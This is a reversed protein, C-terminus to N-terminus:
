ESVDAGGAKQGIRFVVFEAPKVPAVGIMIVVRGEDIDQQTMTTGLGVEVFFAQERTAGQLAGSRWVSTLFATVTARLGNWLPVDNPRFVAYQTSRDISQELFIFLRRVNIYRWLAESTITRAGWVRIGRGPLERIANIGKPNLVAQQATGVIAELDLAGSVPQNAPAAHVGPGADTRAYIGIVHGSPPATARTNELPDFIQIWPYYLAGYKSEYLDRQAKVGDLDAGPESDLVAFCYKTLECHNTLASQVEQSTWGPAAIISVDDINLFSAIGTRDDANVADAGILQTDGIAGLPDSGGTMHADQVVLPLDTADLGTAPKLSKVRVLNSRENVIKEVFRSHRPDLSLGEFRESILGYALELTFELTSVPLPGSAAPDLADTLTGDLFVTNGVVRSVTASRNDPLSLLSGTEIGKANLLEISPSGVNALTAVVSAAASAPTVDIRVDHAWEGVWPHRVPDPRSPGADIELAAATALSGVPTGAPHPFRLGSHLVLTDAAAAFASVLAYETAVGDAIRVLKEIAFKSRDDVQIQTAGAKADSSLVPSAPPDLRRIPANAAHPADPPATLPLLVPGGSGTLDLPAGAGIQLLERKSTDNEWTTVNGGPVLDTGPAQDLPLWAARALTTAHPTAPAALLAAVGVGKSHPKRPVDVTAEHNGAANTASSDVQVAELDPTGVGLAIWSNDPTLTGAPLEVKTTTAGGGPVTVDSLLEIAPQEELVRVAAGVDHTRALAPAIEVHGSAPAATAKVAEAAPDGASVILWVGQTVGATALLFVRPAGAPYTETTTGLKVAPTPEVATFGSRVPAGAAHPRRLKPRIEVAGAAFASVRVAEANAGSDIILVDNRALGEHFTLALAEANAPADAALLRFPDTRDPLMTRAPWAFQTRDTDTDPDAPLRAVRCIYASQGGNEFFGQVAYMLWRKDQYSSPLRAGFTAEFQAIGGVFTPKNVPGKRAVGLFGATSTSVGTVPPPGLEIEEIYVGPAQYTPM